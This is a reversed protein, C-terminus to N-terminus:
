KHVFSLSKELWAVVDKYIEEKNMENTLEHRAKLYIKVSVNQIGARKYQAAVQEIAKGRQSLPDNEGSIFLYPKDKPIQEVSSKKSLEIIGNLFDVYFSSTFVLGCLPDEIYKYVEIEDRNLWDFETKNPKFKNNFKGFSLTTMLHSRHKPGKFEQEWKAVKLAVHNLLSSNNGTGCIIAGDIDTGFKSLYHRLAFSGMSHGFIFLPLEPKEKKIHLTVTHLDDVLKNWGDSASLYGLDDTTKVSDGHGRHNHGYVIFGHENLFSAFADYRLIHEAMGHSLQVIAKPSEIEDWAIGHLELQDNGILKFTRM